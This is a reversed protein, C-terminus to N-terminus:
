LPNHSYTGLTPPVGNASRIIFITVFCFLGMTVAKIQRLMHPAIAYQRVANEQTIVVLYSFLHLVGAILTLAAYLVSAILPMLLLFYKSGWGNAQGPISFHNGVTPPLRAINAVVLGWVTM